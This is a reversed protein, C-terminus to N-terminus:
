RVHWMLIENGSWAYLLFGVVFLVVSLYSQRRPTYHWLLATTLPFLAFSLVYLTILFPIPMAWFAFWSDAPIHEFETHPQPPRYGLLQTARFALGTLWATFTLPMLASLWQVMRWLRFYKKQDVTTLSRNM